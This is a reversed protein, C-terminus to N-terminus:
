IQGILFKSELFKGKKEKKDVFAVFVNMNEQM